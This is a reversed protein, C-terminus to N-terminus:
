FCKKENIECYKKLYKKNQYNKTKYNILKKNLLLTAKLRKCVRYFYRAM